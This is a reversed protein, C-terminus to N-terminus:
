YAIFDIIKIAKFMIFLLIACKMKIWEYKLYM